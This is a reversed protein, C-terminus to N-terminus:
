QWLWVGTPKVPDLQPSFGKHRKSKSWSVWLEDVAGRQYRFCHNLLIGWTPPRGFPEALIKMAFLFDQCWCHENQRRYYLARSKKNNNIDMLTTILYTLWKDWGIRENESLDSSTWLTQHSQQLCSGPTRVGWPLVRDVWWWAEFITFHNMARLKWEGTIILSCYLFVTGLLLSSNKLGQKYHEQESFDVVIIMDKTHWKGKLAM